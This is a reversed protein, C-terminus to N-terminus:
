LQETAHVKKKEWLVQGVSALKFINAYATPNAVLIGYPLCHETHWGAELTVFLFVTAQQHSGHCILAISHCGSSSSTMARLLKGSRGKTANVEGGWIDPALQIWKFKKIDNIDWRTLATSYSAKTLRARRFNIISFKRSSNNEQPPLLRYSPSATSCCVNGCWLQLWSFFYIEM